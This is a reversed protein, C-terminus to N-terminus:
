LAKPAARVSRQAPQRFAHPAVKQLERRIMQGSQGSGANQDSGVQFQGILSSLQETEQSLSHSAATSQEVMAANQQTVQDMQNIATNVEALGTAQERAGTAIESVVVNIDNVQAMIRELAKGTEAVLKVGHDVQATSASILGKIEKAAEASRQALARVESAVVAFGRGADGARAAEVGANLALLNTQFAIEDIVGIIQSIQQASKAIGDMAHVAERVVVASKKADDDAAAVVQRAHSAGEASKRVTATIEDLAAATEELSAAQQETRRSLDDSAQAIEGTGSKIGQTTEAIVKMTQRLRAVAKNFDHKLKEYEPAFAADIQSTLDGDSLRELSAALAQVVAEQQRALGQREAENRRREADSSAEVRERDATAQELAAANDKFVQVAAAMAGIEDSRGQGEIPSQLDGSALRRMTLTLSRIPRSLSIAFMVFLVLSLAAILASGMITVLLTTRGQSVIASVDDVLELLGIKRGSFDQLPFATVAFNKGGDSVIKQFSRGDIASRAEEPTLYTRAAFTANQTHFQGDMDIQIALDIHHTKKVREFYADTLPTGVDVTGVVTGNAAVLPFTALSSLARTRVPEIGTQAKGQRLTEVVMRRRGSFDDGFENPSHVRAVVIGPARAFTILQINAENKLAPLANVYRQILEERAGSAVLEAVGPEGAIIAAVSTSNRSQAALADFVSNGARTLEAEIAHDVMNSQMVWSLTGIAACALFVTGSGIAALRKWLPSRIDLSQSGRSFSSTNSVVM